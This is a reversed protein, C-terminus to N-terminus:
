FDADVDEVLRVATERPEVHRGDGEAIPGVRMIEVAIKVVEVGGVKGVHLFEEFGIVDGVVGNEQHEAIDRRFVAGGSFYKPGNRGPAAGGDALGASGGWVSSRRPRTSSFNPVRGAM